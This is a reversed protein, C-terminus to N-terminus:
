FISSDLTVDVLKILAHPDAQIFLQFRSFDTLKIIGFPCDIACEELLLILPM